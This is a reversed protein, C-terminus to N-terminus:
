RVTSTFMMKEDIFILRLTAIEIGAKKDVGLYALTVHMGANHLYEVTTAVAANQADSCCAESVEQLGM